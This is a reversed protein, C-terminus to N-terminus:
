NIYFFEAMPKFGPAKIADRSPIIVEVQRNLYLTIQDHDQRKEEIMVLLEDTYVFEKKTDKIVFQYTGAAAKRPEGLTAFSSLGIFQIFALLILIPKKM